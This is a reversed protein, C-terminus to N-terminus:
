PQVIDVAWRAARDVAGRLGQPRGDVRSWERVASVLISVVLLGGLRAREDPSPLGRRAALEEAIAEAWLERVELERATLTPSSAIVRYREATIPTGIRLSFEALAARTAEFAPLSRDQQELHARLADLDSAADGFVLDAKAPFYRFATRTSVGARAAV